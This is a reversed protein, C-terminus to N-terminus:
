QSADAQPNLCCLFFYLHLSVVKFSTAHVGPELQAQLLVSGQAEWHYSTM